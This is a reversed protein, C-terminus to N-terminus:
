LIEFNLRQGADDQAVLVDRHIRDAAINGAPTIRHDGRRMHRDDRGAHGTHFTDNGTGRWVLAPRM